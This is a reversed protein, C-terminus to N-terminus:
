KVLEHKHVAYLRYEGGNKERYEINGLEDCKVYVEENGDFNNSLFKHSCKEKDLEKIKMKLVTINYKKRSVTLVKKSNKGILWKLINKM